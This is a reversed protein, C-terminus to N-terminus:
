SIMRSSNKKEIKMIRRNVMEMLADNYIKKYGFKDLIKEKPVIRFRKIMEILHEMQIITQIGTSKDIYNRVERQVNIYTTEDVDSYRDGLIARIMVPEMVKEWGERLTSITGDNDFLAFKIKGRVIDPNVIEIETGEIYKAKRIDEAIEPRYIYDPLIGIKLIEAPTATGTQKIKQVSVASAFNAVEAAEEPSAGAALSVAIGSLITDGAGIPDANGLVQIGSIVSISKGNNVIIGRDGRSIFVPKKIKRYIEESYKKLDELMIFEFQDEKSGYYIAAQKSNIRMYANKFETSKNRSNIIFIKSSYSNIIGNLKEIINNNYICNNLQEYIICADSIKIKEEIERLIENETEKSILNFRGFDFREIEEDNIYPKSYTSTAWDEKQVKLGSTDVGKEKLLRLLEKGFIDDGIVGIAYVKSVGMDLLNYTVNAAAGPSYHQSRIGQVEKGTELSVESFDKELEWYADLCFDGFIVIKTKKINKFIERLREEKM